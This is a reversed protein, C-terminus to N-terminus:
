KNSDRQKKLKDIEADQRRCKVALLYILTGKDCGLLGSKKVGKPNRFKGIEIVADLAENLKQDNM